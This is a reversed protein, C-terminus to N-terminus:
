YPKRALRNVQRLQHAVDHRRETNERFLPMLPEVDVDRLADAHRGITEHKPLRDRVHDVVRDLVARWARLYLNADLRRAIVRHYGDEILPRSDRGFVAVLDEIAEEADM